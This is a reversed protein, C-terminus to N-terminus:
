IKYIKTKVKLASNKDDDITLFKRAEPSDSSSVAPLNSKSKLKVNM